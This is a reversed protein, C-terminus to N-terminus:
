ARRDGAFPRCRSRRPVHTWSNRMRHVSHWTGRGGKERNAIILRGARLSHRRRGHGSQTPPEELSNGPLKRYIRRHDRGPRLPDRFGRGPNDRRSSSQELVEDGSNTEGTLGPSPIPTSDCGGPPRSRSGKAPVRDFLRRHARSHPEAATFGADTGAVIPHACTRRRSRFALLAGYTTNGNARAQSVEGQRNQRKAGDRRAGSGSDGGWSCRLVPDSRAEARDGPKDPPAKCRRVPRRCRCGPM